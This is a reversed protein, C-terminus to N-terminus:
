EVYFSDFELSNMYVQKELDMTHNDSNFWIDVIGGQNKNNLYTVLRDSISELTATDSAIVKAVITYTTYANDSNMYNIQDSKRFSYGIWNESLDFSDPLNEFYIGGNCYANLSADAKMLTNIDTGYSM